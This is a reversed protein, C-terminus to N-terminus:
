ELTVRRLVGKPLPREPDPLSAIDWFKGVSALSRSNLTIKGKDSYHKAAGWWWNKNINRKITFKYIFKKIVLPAFTDSIKVSQQMVAPRIVQYDM